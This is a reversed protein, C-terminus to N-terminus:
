YNGWTINQKTWNILTRTDQFRNDSQAVVSILRHGNINILGVFCGGAEPTWGTKLGEIEPVVGLLENTSVLSHQIKNDVDSITVHKNKVIETIIPNKIAIRALQSLDYVTSYHNPNHLGDYNVFHTNKLGYSSMLKNMEGVFGDVGAPHHKALNYAADNASYVLLATILSKVTMKEGPELNMVQGEKFSDIVTVVEDLPYINLATIATALKTTSAPYIRDNLRKSSLVTNTDSDLLAFSGAVAAPPSALHIIPLQPHQFQALATNQPIIKVKPNISWLGSTPLWFLNVALLLIIIILDTIKVKPLTM